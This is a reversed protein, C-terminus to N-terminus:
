ARRPGVFRLLVFFAVIWFSPLLLWDGALVSGRGLALGAGFSALLSLLSAALAARLLREIIFLAKAFGPRRRARLYLGVTVAVPPLIAAAALAAVGALGSTRAEGTTVLDVFWLRLADQWVLGPAALLTVLTLSLLPLRSLFLPLSGRFGAPRPRAPPASMLPRKQAARVTQRAGVGPRAGVAPEAGIAPEAGDTPRAGVAPRAEVASTARSPYPDNGLLAARQCWPCSALGRRYAHTPVIECGILDDELRGLVEKFARADPRRWAPGLLARKLLGRLEPSLIARPPAALPPRLLRTRFYPSRRSRINEEMGPPEGAGGFVGTFPHNGEMLLLFTLVALGFRDSGARRDIERFSRGQLEPPTYEAKGVTCRFVRTGSAVQISDLDVLTVLARDDVLINSENLDGVVYDAEHLAALTGSLNRAIRVLYRWSIGPARSRRSRPHYLQHLPLYRRADIRPMVFGVVQGASDLVPAEPWAISAHGPRRDPDKPVKALMAGLKRAREPNPHAYLKVARGTDGQLAYVHAEGGRGLLEGLELRTGDPTRFTEAALTM